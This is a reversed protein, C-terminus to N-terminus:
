GRRANFSPRDPSYGWVAIAFLVALLALLVALSEGSFRGYLAFRIAEVAHTFPNVTCIWHLAASSEAVKALPYLASSAFFIPFVVFNMVGAFNEIRSVVVSLVLGLAGFTLGCVLLVPLVSLYGLAPPDIAWLRAVFLFLYVLFISVVTGAVLKCALLFWRPHPAILLIKMTGMERDYVLSLSSQLGNFLQIMAVLGPVIYVEYPVATLYPPVDTLGVTARFGAAFIALWLLPRVISAMLRARQGVFRSVERSVIAALCLLRVALEPSQNAPAGRAM